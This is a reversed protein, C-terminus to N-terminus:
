EELVESLEPLAFTEFEGGPYVVWQYADPLYRIGEYGVSRIIMPEAIIEGLEQLFVEPCEVFIPGYSSGIAVKDGNWFSEFSVLNASHYEEELKEFAERDVVDVYNSKTAGDYNM